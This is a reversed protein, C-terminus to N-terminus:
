NYSRVQSTEGLTRTEGHEQFRLKLLARKASAAALSWSHDGSYEVYTHEFGAAALAFHMKRNQEVVRPYDDVGVELFIRPAADGVRARKILEDPDYIKRVANGPLGWVRNHESETPMMCGGAREAAYPDGERRSAYFAGAYAFSGHFLEPHRLSLYVAAAGGMSFGGIIRAQARRDTPFATDIASVLDHVLYDEYRNGSADNIFWRRGSEPFILLLGCGLESLSFEVHRLWSLRNGAFAHLLYCTCWGQAPPPGPPVLVRAVKQRGLSAAYHRFDAGPFEKTPVRNM